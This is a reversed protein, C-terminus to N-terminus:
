EPDSVASERGPDANTHCHSRCQTPNPRHRQPRSQIRRLSALPEPDSSAATHHQTRSMTLAQPLSPSEPWLVTAFHRRPRTM